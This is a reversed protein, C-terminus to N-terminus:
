SRFKMSHVTFNWPRCAVLASCWLLPWVFRSQSRPGKYWVTLCNSLQLYPCPTNGKYAFPFPRWIKHSCRVNKPCPPVLLSTYDAFILTGWIKLKYNTTTQQTRGVLPPWHNVHCSLYRFHPSWLCPSSFRDQVCVPHLFVVIQLRYPLYLWCAKWEQRLYRLWFNNRATSASGKCSKTNM